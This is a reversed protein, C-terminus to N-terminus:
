IADDGMETCPVIWYGKGPLAILKYPKGEDECRNIIHTLWFGRSSHSTGHEIFEKWVRKLNANTAKGHSTIEVENIVKM